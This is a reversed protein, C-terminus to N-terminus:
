RVRQVKSRRPRGRRRRVVEGSREEGGQTMSVDREVDNEINVNIGTITGITGDIQSEADVVYDGVTPPTVNGEEGDDDDFPPDGAEDSGMDDDDTETSLKSRLGELFSGVGPDIIAERSETATIRCCNTRKIRKLIEHRIGKLVLNSTEDDPFSRKWTRMHREFIVLVVTLLSARRYGSWIFSPTSVAAITRISSVMRGTAAEL